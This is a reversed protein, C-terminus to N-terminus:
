KRAAYLAENWGITAHEVVLNWQQSQENWKFNQYAALLRTAENQSYVAKEKGKSYAKEKADWRAYTVTTESADYTFHLCYSKEWGCTASNWRLVEKQKLLNQADYVFNYKLQQHLYKGEEIKYVTQATVQNNSVETNYAFDKESANASATVSLLAITASIIITANM